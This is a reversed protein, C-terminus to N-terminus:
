VLGMFALVPCMYLLTCFTSTQMELEDGEEYNRRISLLEGTSRELTVVYPKALDDEDDIGEIVLSLMFKTYPIVTM